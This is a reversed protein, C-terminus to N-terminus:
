ADSAGDRRTFEHQTPIGSPGHELRGGNKFFRRREIQRENYTKERLLFGVLKAKEVSALFVRSAKM